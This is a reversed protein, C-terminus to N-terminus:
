SRPYPVMTGVTGQVGVTFELPCGGAVWLDQRSAGRQYVEGIGTVFAVCQM